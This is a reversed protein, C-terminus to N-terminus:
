KTAEMEAIGEGEATLRAQSGSAHAASVAIEGDDSTFGFQHPPLNKEMYVRSIRRLTQSARYNNGERARIVYVPNHQGAWELWAGLAKRTWCSGSGELRRVILGGEHEDIHRMLEDFQAPTCPWDEAMVAGYGASDTEYTRVPTAFYAPRAIAPVPAPEPAAEEPEDQMAAAQRAKVNEVLAPILVKFFLVGSLVACLIGVWIFLWVRAAVLAGANEAEAQAFAAAVIQTPYEMTATSAISVGTSITYALADNRAQRTQTAIAAPTAAAQTEHIHQERVSAADATWQGAQATMRGAELTVDSQLRSLADREAQRTSLLADQAAITMAYGTTATPTATRTATASPTTLGQTDALAFSQVAPQGAASGDASGDASAVCSLITLALVAVAAVIRRNM